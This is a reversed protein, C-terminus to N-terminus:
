TLRNALCCAEWAADESDYYKTTEISWMKTWFFKGIQSTSPHVEYGANSAIAKYDTMFLKRVLQARAPSEIFNPANRGIPFRTM